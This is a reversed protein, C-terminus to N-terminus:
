SAQLNNQKGSDSRSLSMRANEANQKEQILALDYPFVVVFETYGETTTKVDINGKVKETALRSLYLGMGGTQSRESVRMFMQFIKERDAYAIGIGNDRVTLVIGSDTKKLCVEVFPTARV